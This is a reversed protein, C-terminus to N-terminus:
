AIRQCACCSNSNHETFIKPEGVLKNWSELQHTVYRRGAAEHEARRFKRLLSGVLLWAFFWVKRLGLKGGSNAAAVHGQNEPRVQARTQLAKSFFRKVLVKGM